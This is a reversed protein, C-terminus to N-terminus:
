IIILAGLQKRIERKKSWLFRNESLDIKEIFQMNQIDNLLVPNLEEIHNHSLNLIKLSSLPSLVTFGSSTNKSIPRLWDLYRIQNNNIDLEKLSTLPHFIMEPLNRVDNNSLDLKKLSSMYQFDDPKLISINKNSLNFEQISELSQITLQSCDTNNTLTMILQQVEQSRDCISILTERNIPTQLQNVTSTDAGAIQFIANTQRQSGNTKPLTTKESNPELSRNCSTCLVVLLFIYLWHM